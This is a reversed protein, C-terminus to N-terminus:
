SFTLKKDHTRFELSSVDEFFSRPDLAVRAMAGPPSSILLHVYPRSCTPAARLFFGLLSVPFLDVHERLLSCGELQTGSAEIM